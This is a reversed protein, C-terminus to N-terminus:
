IASCLNARLNEKRLVGCDRKSNERELLSKEDELQNLHEISALEM